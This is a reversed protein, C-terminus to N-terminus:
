RYKTQRRPTGSPVPVQMPKNGLKWPAVEPSWLLPKQPSAKKDVWPPDFETIKSQCDTHSGFLLEDVYSAKAKVRYSGRGKRHVQFPQIGSVSPEVATKMSTVSEPFLFSLGSLCGVLVVSDLDAHFLLNTFILISM